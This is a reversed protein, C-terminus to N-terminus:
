GIFKADPYNKNKFTTLMENATEFDKHRPSLVDADRFEEPRMSKWDTIRAYHVEDANYYKAFQYFQELQKINEKQMVIKIIVHINDKQKKEKLWELNELLVEYKGGRRLKEYEVKTCADATLNITSVRQSWQGLRHWRNKMLLGNTQIHLMCKPFNKLNAEVLVKLLIESAFLEGSTSMVIERLNKLPSNFLNKVLSLVKDREDKNFMGKDAYKIVKKRCSPCSLNCTMDGALFITQLYDMPSTNAVNLNSYEYPLEEKRQLENNILVKCANENCYIYSHDTISNRIKKSVHNKLISEMSNENINGVPTPLWRECGCIYVLGGGDILATTFPALCFLGKLTESKDKFTTM